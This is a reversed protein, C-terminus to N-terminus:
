THIVAEVGEGKADSRCFVLFVTDGSPWSQAWHVEIERESVMERGATILQM